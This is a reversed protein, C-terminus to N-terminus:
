LIRIAVTTKDTASPVRVLTLRNTVAGEVALEQSTNLRELV